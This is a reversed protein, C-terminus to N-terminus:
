FAAADAHWVGHFDLLPHTVLALWCARYHGRLDRHLRVMLAAVLPAALTLFFLSHTAARHYTFDSVPDGMSLFIDLDPLTGCVGGWVLAKRGARRGLVAGGVAAGLAFQSISDM